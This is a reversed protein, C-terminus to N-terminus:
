KGDPNENVIIIKQREALLRGRNDRVCIGIRLLRNEKKYWVVEKEVHLGNEQVEESLYKQGAITSNMEWDACVGARALQQLNNRQNVQVVVTVASTLAFLIIMLAILPELITGQLKKFIIGAM